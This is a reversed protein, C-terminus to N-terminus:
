ELRAPIGDEYLGRETLVWPIPYDHPELPIEERILKERCLLVAGSRYHALFRDYYGQGQGLRHGLHNCTLCPLIAFDTEDVSVTPADEPPEPIGYAGPSLQSLTTIQRLEMMGPGTCLPVCLRKGAALANELIPRTDIEHPTGVFCFITGAAQYEPMATLHAAIAQDSERRYRDSLQRERARMVARLQQKEEQRTM